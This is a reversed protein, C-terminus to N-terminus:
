KFYNIYDYDKKFAKYIEAEKPIEYENSLTYKDFFKYVEDFWKIQNEAKLVWHNEQPLYLFESPIGKLQLATFTSLGETLQVRYDIGGHIIIMPTHWNKVYRENSYIEFGKRIEEGEWPNCGKHQKDCFEEKPFWIEETAYFMSIHSFLGDHNAFCNFTWDKNLTENLDNHGEIWNIMYGGYSAGAACMRTRDLYSYKDLIYSVGMMIDEFPVGGWNNRVDDQFKDGFGVSGHPNIMIVAYGRSTYMQPNWSTGWAQTYSGEPGGHILVAVPYTKTPDFNIPKLFFGYVTDNYGGTFNFMEAKSIGKKSFFEKNLDEIEYEGEKINTNENYKFLVLKEPTDYAYIRALAINRNKLPFSPLTYSIDPYNVPYKEIIPKIPNKLNITFLRNVQYTNAYFIIEFDSKWFYAQISLEEDNPVITLENTLINYIEFHLIESELDPIKMALYAIKTGDKSFVPYQTRASTHNTICVPNKMTLLNQYYTKFGTRWAEERNRLHASFAIMNGDNSLDYNTSDTFLPPTNIEMGQTVDKPDDKLIVKNESLEIKQIFVHSGKGEVLWYDWHFMMLQNYVQYTQNKEKEILDASCKMNNCKFYVDTSFAITKSKIKYEVIPLLYDTLRISLDEDDKIENEPPFKIYYISSKIESNSRQFFLFNPFASSFQPSSDSQGEIKPTLIKTENTKLNKFRFHSYSKGTDPNWRKVGMILYNGDPSLIYGSFKEVSMM